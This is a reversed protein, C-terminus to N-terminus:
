KRYFLEFASGSPYVQVHQRYSTGKYTFVKKGAKKKLYNYLENLTTFKNKDSDAPMKGKTKIGDTLWKTFYSYEKRNSWSSERYASATLVFFKNELVFAGKGPALVGKDLDRFADVVAQDFAAPSFQPADIVNADDFDEPSLAPASVGSAGYVAAGSGCSDILVIVQGPVESLWGALRGLTLTYRDYWNSYRYDPYVMLCGAYGSYPGGIEYDEDGHSSIYFLSVDGLEAGAFTSRILSHIQEATQNNASRVTWKAGSPGCVGKLMNTVLAADNGGPLRSLGSRPFSGEGIVLARYAPVKTVTLPIEAQQGNYTTLTITATGKALARATRGSIQVVSPNSSVISVSGGSGPSLVPEIKMSRGVWLFTGGVNATVYTPAAKVTVKCKAKKGNFTKATITAKGKGRAVVRGSDDVTAVASNSSTFRILSASKNPITATLTAREDVGLTLKKASLTVKKPAKRVTVACSSEVGGVKVTITAKGKKKGKVVGSASVTAIKRDSSTFVAGVSEPSAGSALTLQRKEKVGLTLTATTLVPGAPASVMADPDAPALVAADADADIELPAEGADDEGPLDFEELEPVADEVPFAEEEALAACPLLALALLVALLRKWQTM